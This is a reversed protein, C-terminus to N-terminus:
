LLLRLIQQGRLTSEIIKFKGVNSLYDQVTQYPNGRSPATTQLLLLLCLVCSYSIM